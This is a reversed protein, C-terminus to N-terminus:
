DTDVLVPVDPHGIMTSPVWGVVFTLDDVLEAGVALHQHRKAFQADGTFTGVGEVIRRVYEDRGVAVNVDRITVTWRLVGADHFEVLVALVELFPAIMTRTGILELARMRQRHVRAPAEENAIAGVVPNLNEILVALEECRPFLEAARAADEDV